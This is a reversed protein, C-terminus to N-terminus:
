DNDGAGERPVTLSLTTVFQTRLVDTFAKLAAHEAQLATLQTTALEPIPASLQKAGATAADLKQLLEESLSTAGRDVLLDDFGKATSAPDASGTFVTRAMELNVVLAKTSLQARQSEAQEPCPMPCAATLGAPGGLKFDKVVRDVYFLGAFLDNVADNPTRWPSGTEGAKALSDGFTAWADRVRGASRELHRAVAAAMTKRRQGLAPTMALATWSGDTNITATPPCENTDGKPWLLHELVLLGRETVLAADLTADTPDPATVLNTDVRCLNATPWTYVDDRLSQGATVRTASGIPGVELLEVRQWSLFTTEFRRKAEDLAAAESSAPASSWAAVALQLAAADTVFQALAPRAVSRDFEGLVERQLAAGPDPRPATCGVM